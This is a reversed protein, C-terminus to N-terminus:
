GSSDVTMNVGITQRFYYAMWKRKTPLNEINLYDVKGKYQVELKHTTKLPDSRDEIFKALLKMNANQIWFEKLVEVKKSRDIENSIFIHKEDPPPLIQAQFQSM